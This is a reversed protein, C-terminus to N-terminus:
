AQFFAKMARVIDSFEDDAVTRVSLVLADHQIRAIIPCDAKRLGAELEVASGSMPRIAVGWGPMVVGPSAGGGVSDDVEILAIGAPLGAAALAAALAAGRKHCLDSSQALAALTPIKQLAEEDRYLRLTGELGALTMKDVRLARILPHRRMAAIYNAKGVIIGAQPGGLLKDGSFTVVDCGASIAERVTPEHPLGLTELDIFLGSGLDQICPLHKSHALGALDAADVSETFGVIRYNSTHVKMLAGTAEGIVREYDALHTKNTTGVERIFCGSQEIVDPIRFSGGIEVLEGRSIVVEKGSVLSTLVLLVAAANNNVVLADEAETLRCLLERVHDDRRGRKRLTLDYELNNYHSVLDAINQALEPALVARGLNTHLVTGTGNIVRRLHGRDADQIHSMVAQDFLEPSFPMEWRGELIARRRHELVTRIADRVVNRSKQLSQFASRQLLTDVDPLQRLLEKQAENM